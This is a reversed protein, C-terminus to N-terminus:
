IWAHLMVPCGSGQYIGKARFKYGPVVSALLMRIEQEHNRDHYTTIALRPHYKEILQIAGRIVQYEMGEIDMKIYTVPLPGNLFLDDLTATQIGNEGGGSVLRSSIGENTITGKGTVDALAVKMIKVNTYHSFTQELCSYFQETPEILFVQRCRKAVTLSFLGEAAGCDVVVDSDSVTTEPIEYFHWNDPYLSEVIMQHLDKIRMESPWFVPDDFGKLFVKVYFGDTEASRIMKVAKKYYSEAFFFRILEGPSVNNRRRFLYYFLVKLRAIGM